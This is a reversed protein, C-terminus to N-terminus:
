LTVTSIRMLESGDKSEKKRTLTGERFWSSGSEGYTKSYSQRAQFEIYVM